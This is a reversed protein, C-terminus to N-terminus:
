PLPTVIVPAPPLLSLSLIIMFAFALIASILIAIIQARSLKAERVAPATGPLGVYVEVPTVEGYRVRWAALRAEGNYLGIIVYPTDPFTAQRVDTPSPIPDGNPHSHYIALLELGRAELQMLTRAFIVDDLRYHHVPDAAANPIPIVEEVQERVGALLGCAEQPAADRAYRALAHGQAETM